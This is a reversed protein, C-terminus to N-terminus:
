PIWMNYRLCYGLWCPLWNEFLSYLSPSIYLIYTLHLNSLLLFPISDLYGCTTAFATAWGVLCGIRLSFLSVHLFTLFTSFVCIYKVMANSSSFSSILDHCYSFELLILWFHSGFSFRPFPPLSKCVFFFQFLSLFLTLGVGVLLALM